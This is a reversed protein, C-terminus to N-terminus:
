DIDEKIDIKEYSHVKVATVDNVYKTHNFVHRVSVVLWQGCLKKDLENDDGFMRDIGVFTGAIRHTSGLLRMNICENLFMGSFLIETMGIKKRSNKDPFNSSDTYAFKPQINYQETKSKNLTFIPEPKGDPYLYKTYLSKFDERVKKIEQDTFDLGFQKDKSSYFIIPKSILAKTNDIGSMDVFDYTTIKNWEAVKIDKKYMDSTPSNREDVPAKYPTTNGSNTEAAFDEFFLHEIQLPGPEVKGADVFLNSLSKLQWKNTSRNINFICPDGKQSVHKSCISEICDCVSYNAPSTFLLKSLGEDWNKPNTDIFEKMGADTLLQKLALGTKMSREEDTALAPSKLGQATSTSWQLKKDMLQQYRKDWFYVKKVKETINSAKPDEVDYIIMTYKMNWIEPPLDIGPTIPKIEITLEDRADMRYYYLSKNTAVDKSRELGEYINKYVLYGKYPWELLNDEIVLQLIAATPLTYPPLTHNDFTVIIDFMQNGVLKQTATTSDLVTPNNQNPVVDM